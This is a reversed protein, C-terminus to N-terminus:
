LPLYQLDKSINLTFIWAWQVRNNQLCLSHQRSCSITCGLNSMVCRGYAEVVKLKTLSVPIRFVGKLPLYRQENITAMERTSALPSLWHSMINTHIILRKWWAQCIAHQFDNGERTKGDANLIACSKQSVTILIVKTLGQHCRRQNFRFLQQNKLLVQM